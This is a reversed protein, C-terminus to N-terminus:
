TPEVLTVSAGAAVGRVAVEDPNRAVVEVEVPRYGGPEAVYVVPKGQRTFLAKAPISIAGPLRSVIVDLRGNMGPRLREDPQKMRAQARFYRMPPWDYTLETLPSILTVESPFPKEPFADVYVRAENGAAIRGRDIEEVKGKMELTTLDPIEALASGPWVNDGVKFPRANMWGQSYNAMYIIIGSGPAKLEMRELRGRTIDVESQAKECQRTLSALKAADSARHLEATAEQVRLKEEALSLEIRSEEGQIASVIEAKSAELRAREVQYRAQALDRKDQEATIRAQAVAQDLTAKAQELAAQKETLQQRASSPDFRIVIEGEKVQSGSPALWVIQLNPVNVPASIQVSRNAVLEGRCRVLVLFEGRRAPATPLNTAAQVRRLQRVGAVSGAIAALTAVLGIWFRPRKPSM